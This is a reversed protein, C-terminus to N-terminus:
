AIAMAQEHQRDFKECWAAAQLLLALIHLRAFNTASPVSAFVTSVKQYRELYYDRGHQEIRSICENQIADQVSEDNPNSNLSYDALRDLSMQSLKM